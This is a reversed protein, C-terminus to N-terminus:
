TLTKDNKPFIYKFFFVFVMMKKVVLIAKVKKEGTKIITKVLTHLPTDM